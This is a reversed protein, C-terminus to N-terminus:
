NLQNKLPDNVKGCNLCHNISPDQAKHIVVSTADADALGMSLEVVTVEEATYAPAKSLAM